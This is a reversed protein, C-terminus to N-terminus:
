IRDTARLWCGAALYLTGAILMTIMILIIVSFDGSVFSTYALRVLSYVAFLLLVAALYLGILGAAGTVVLNDMSLMPIM